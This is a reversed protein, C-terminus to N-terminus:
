YSINTDSKSQLVKGIGKLTNNIEHLGQSLDKMSSAIMEINVDMQKINWAMYKLSKETTPFEVNSNQNNRTNFTM